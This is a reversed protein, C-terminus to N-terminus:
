RLVGSMPAGAYGTMELYGRGSVSRGQHTGTVDITGEWYTVGTSQSTVLEQADLPTVAELALGLSPVAVRWEVPYSTGSVPSTWRRGPTLQFDDLRLHVVGDSTVVTGGSRPDPAGDLLRLTYIMLDTGDDLQISFWDWGAQSSELFSSGFEHDMWSAGTVEFAEGDIEIRGRTELRTFSYYHSANGAVAGKQSFGRDGHLVPTTAGDLRLDISLRGAEHSDVAHLRHTTGQLSARWEENWVDLVDTRAGAWGVGARNLREAVRHVGGDVDTIALHAMYLDRVAWRSPNVPQPDVGIRFFTLQYGFRRGEANRLNGTYYWWEIRHDPHAAHDRPFSLEYARNAFLWGEANATNDQAARSLGTALTLVLVLLLLCGGRSGQDRIGSGQRRNRM